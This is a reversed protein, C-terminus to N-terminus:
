LPTVTKDPWSIEAFAEDSNEGTITRTDTWALAGGIYINMTVDNGPTYSSGPYDNVYATFTGNQPDSININEPGTGPIDDIDLSPNDSTDGRTGWDLGAGVCNGYYCDTNTRLSGGPALLHLDMDDGSHTWYIEIWLDGGPEATLTATCPESRDGLENTVVLEAEYTGVLDPTFGARNAGSGAPMTAASGAPKTVLTWRYGTIAYGQPDYSESGKWTTDEHIAEITDPDAECVAIPQSGSEGTLTAYKMGEPDDSTVQMQGAFTDSADPAFTVTVEEEQGADLVIPLEDALAHTFVADTETISDITLPASGVNRLTVTEDKTHGVGVAGFDVTSPDIELSPVSTGGLLDVFTQPSVGDSSVVVAQGSDEGGSSTWTVTVDRSEDPEYRGMVGETTLTFASGMYMEVSTVNLTESGINKITFTKEATQDVPLEGFALSTPTVEIAAAASEQDTVGQLKYDQCAVLFILSAVVPM